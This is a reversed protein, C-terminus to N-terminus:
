KKKKKTAVYEPLNKYAGKPTKSAFEKCLKESTACIYRQQAKSQFPM